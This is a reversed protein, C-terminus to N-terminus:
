DFEKAKNKKETGRGCKGNIKISQNDNYDTTIQTIKKQKAGCLFTYGIIQARDSHSNM